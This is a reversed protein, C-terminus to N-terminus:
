EDGGGRAKHPCELVGALGAALGAPIPDRGVEINSLYNPSIGCAEGLQLQTMHARRRAEAIARPDAAFPCLGGAGLEALARAATKPYRGILAVLLREDDMGALDAPRKPELAAPECDLAAAVKVLTGPGPSRRGNELDCLMGQSVGSREALAALTLGARRRLTRLKEPDHPLGNRPM